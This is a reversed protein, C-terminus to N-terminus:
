RRNLGSWPDDSPMGPPRPATPRPPVSPTPLDFEGITAPYGMPNMRPDCLTRTRMHHDFLVGMRRQAAMAVLSMRWVQKDVERDIQPSPPTDFMRSLFTMLIRFSDDRQANVATLLQELNYSAMSGDLSAVQVWFTQPQKMTTLLLNEMRRRVTQRNLGWIDKSPDAMDQVYHFAMGLRYGAIATRDNPPVHTEVAHPDKEGGQLGARVAACFAARSRANGELYHSVERRLNEAADNARKRYRDPDNSGIRICPEEFWQQLYRGDAGTSWKKHWCRANYITPTTTAYAAEMLQTLRMHGDSNWAEAELVLFGVIVASLVMVRKM